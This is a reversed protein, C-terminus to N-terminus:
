MIKLLCELSSANKEYIIEKKEVLTEKLWSYYMIEDDEEFVINLKYLRDDDVNIITMGYRWPLLFVMNNYICFDWWACYDDESLFTVQSSSEIQMNKIM